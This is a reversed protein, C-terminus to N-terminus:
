HHHFLLSYLLTDSDNRARLACQGAARACPRMRLWDCPWPAWALVAGAYSRRRATVGWGDELLRSSARSSTSLHAFALHRLPQDRCTATGAHLTSVTIEM